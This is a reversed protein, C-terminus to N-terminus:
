CVLNSQGVYVLLCCHSASSAQSWSKVLNSDLFLSCMTLSVVPKNLPQLIVSRCLGNILWVVLLNCKYEFVPTTIKVTNPM